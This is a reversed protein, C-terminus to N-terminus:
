ISINMIYLNKLEVIIFLEFCVMYNSFILELFNIKINLNKKNKFFDNTEYDDILQLICSKEKM